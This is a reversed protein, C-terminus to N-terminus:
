DASWREEFDESNMKLGNNLKDLMEKGAPLMKFNNITVQICDKIAKLCGKQKIMNIVNIANSKDEKSFDIWGLLM